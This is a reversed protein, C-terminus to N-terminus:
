EPKNIRSRFDIIQASPPKELTIFPKEFANICDIMGNEGALKDWMMNYINICAAMPNNSRDRITDIRWQLGRMRERSHKPISSLFEEIVASRAAEFADPDDSALECWDDFGMETYISNIM